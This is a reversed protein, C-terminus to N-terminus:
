VPSRVRLQPHLDERSHWASVRTFMEFSLPTLWTLRHLFLSPSSCWEMVGIRWRRPGQLEVPLATSKYDVSRPEIGRPPGLECFNSNLLYFHSADPANIALIVRVVIWWAGFEAFARHGERPSQHGIPRSTPRSPRAVQFSELDKRRPEIGRRGAMSPMAYRCLSRRYRRTLLYM